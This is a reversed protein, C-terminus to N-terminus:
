IEEIDIEIRIVNNSIDFEAYSQDFADIQVATDNFFASNIDFVVDKAGIDHIDNITTRYVLPNNSHYKSIDHFYGMNNRITYSLVVGSDNQTSKVHARYNKTSVLGHAAWNFLLPQSSDLLLKIM